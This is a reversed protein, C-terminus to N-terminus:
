AIEPDQLFVLSRDVGQGVQAHLVLRLAAFFAGGSLTPAPFLQLIEDVTASGLSAHRGCLWARAERVSLSLREWDIGSDNADLDLLDGLSVTFLTYEADSLASPHLSLRRAPM